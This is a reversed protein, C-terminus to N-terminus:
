DIREKSQFFFKLITKKKDPNLGVVFFNNNKRNAIVRIGKWGRLLSLDLFILLALIKHSHGLIINTSNLFIKYMDNYVILM